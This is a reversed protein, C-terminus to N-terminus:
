SEFNKALNPWIRRSGCGAVTGRKHNLNRRGWLSSGRRPKVGSERMWSGDSTEVESEAAWRGESKEEPSFYARPLHHHHKPISRISTPRPIPQIRQKDLHACYSDSLHSRQSSRLHVFHKIIEGRLKWNKSLSPM